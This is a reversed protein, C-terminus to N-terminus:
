LNNLLTPNETKIKYMTNFEGDDKKKFPNIGSAYEYLTLGITYLDARNDLNERFGPELMEPAIYYLTGPINRTDQTLNTGGSKFALGLDLLVFKREDETRIINGPKIDRHIVNLSKLEKISLLLAGALSKLESLDPKNEKSILEAISKGNILEESYIIYKVGNVDQDFPSVSGLKVLHSSICQELIKIERYARKKNSELIDDDDPDSPIYVVKLAEESDEIKILFVVKFGGSGIEKIIECNHLIKKLENIDPKIM